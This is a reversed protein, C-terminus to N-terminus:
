GNTSFDRAMAQAIQANSVSYSGSQIASKLSAVRDQRVEPVNAIQSSLRSFQQAESSLDAKDSGDTSQDSEAHRTSHIAGAASAAGAGSAGQGGQPELNPNIKVSSAGQPAM